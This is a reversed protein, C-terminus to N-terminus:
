NITSKTCSISILTQSPLYFLWAWNFSSFVFKYIFSSESVFIYNGIAVQLGIITDCLAFLVMGIAFYPNQKFNFFAFVINLILNTYYFMSILALYDTKAGVVLITVIEVIVVLAVRSIINALRVKKNKNEFLLKAFYAMQVLSFFSMALSQMRPEIVVLFIDAMVTFFLGIQVFFAKNKFSIFLLSFGFALVISAFSLIKVVLGSLTLILPLLTAEILAFAGILSWKLKKSM